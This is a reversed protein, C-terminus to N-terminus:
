KKIQCLAAEIKSPCPKLKKERCFACLVPQRKDAKAIEFALRRQFAALSEGPRQAISFKM